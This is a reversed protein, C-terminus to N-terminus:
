FTNVKIEERELLQVVQLVIKFDIVEQITENSGETLFSIAWCANAVSM